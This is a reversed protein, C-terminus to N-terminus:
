VAIKQSVGVKFREWKVYLSGAIIQVPMTDLSRPAPGGLVKGDIAFRSGHCPCIFEGERSSWDYHCGLHPCIPSFVTVEASSKKVAWVNRVTQSRVYADQAVDPYRLSIPRGQPLSDLDAVKTFRGEKMRLSPGILSAVFPIGLAVGILGSFIGVAYGLFKHRPIKEDDPM